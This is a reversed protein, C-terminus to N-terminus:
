LHAVRRRELHDPHPELNVVGAGDRDRGARLKLVAGVPASAEGDYRLLGVLSDGQVNGAFPDWARARATARHLTRQTFVYWHGLEQGAVFPAAQRHGAM